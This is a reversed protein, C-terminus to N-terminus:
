IRAVITRDGDPAPPAAIPHFLTFNTESDPEARVAIDPLTWAHVITERAVVTEHAAAISAKKSGRVM